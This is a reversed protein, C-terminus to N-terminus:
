PHKRGFIGVRIFNWPGQQFFEVDYHEARFRVVVELVQAKTAGRPVHYLVQGESGPPGVALQSVLRNNIDLVIRDVADQHDTVPVGAMLAAFFSVPNM